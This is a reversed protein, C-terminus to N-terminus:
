MFRGVEKLVEHLKTLLVIYQEIHDRIPKQLVTYLALSM